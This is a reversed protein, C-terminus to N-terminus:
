LRQKGNKDIIAQQEGGSKIVVDGTEPLVIISEPLFNLQFNNSWSLGDSRYIKALSTAYKEQTKQTNVILVFFIQENVDAVFAKSNPLASLKFNPKDISFNVKIKPVRSPTITYFYGLVSTSDKFHLGATYKNEEVLLPKFRTINNETFLPISDSENILWRLAELRKAYVDERGRIEREAFDKLSRIYSKLIEPKNYTAKIFESYNAIEEDINRSMLSTILSDLHKLSKLQDTVRALQFSVDASDRLRKGEILASRYDLEAIKMSFINIPLPDPDFKKLQSSLLREVLQTLDNKVSVSDTELKQRLKNIEMDYSVLNEQIPRVEKEIVEKSKEAFTKYDWVKLEDSFFDVMDKGDRGFDKIPQLNWSQNYGTKGLNGSSTRYNEFAKSCSDFRSALISLNKLTAEDSRLYLAKLSPYSQQLTKYLENSRYYLDASLDFYHKVMKVKDIRERLSTIRNEIDLQVDSLKVGFEGTRLDRRNYAVYYEKNRRIERDDIGKLAKNFYLVASDMHQIAVDTQKLIDDKATKEQYILGMFLHANPNDENDVLYKKLFPEADDYQKTNLLAFVDKYKIKQGYATSIFFVFVLFKVLRLKTM